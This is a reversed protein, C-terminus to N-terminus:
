CIHGTVLDIGNVYVVHLLNDDVDETAETGFQGLKLYFDVTGIKSDEEHM